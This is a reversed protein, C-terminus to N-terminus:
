LQHLQQCKFDVEKISILGYECGGHWRGGYFFMPIQIKDKSIQITAVGVDFDKEEADSKEFGANRLALLVGEVLSDCGERRMVRSFGLKTTYRGRFIGLLDQGYHEKLCDAVMTCCDNTGYQIPREILEFLKSLPSGAM